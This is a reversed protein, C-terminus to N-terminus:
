KEQASMSCNKLRISDDTSLKGDSSVLCNWDDATQSTHPTSNNTWIQCFNVFKVAKGIVAFDVSCAKMCFIKM